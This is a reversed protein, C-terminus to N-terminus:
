LAIAPNSPYTRDSCSIRKRSFRDGRAKTKHLAIASIRNPKAASM